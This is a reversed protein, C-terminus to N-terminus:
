EEALVTTFSFPFTVVTKNNFDVKYGTGDKHFFGTTPRIRLFCMNEDEENNHAFYWASFVVAIKDRIARNSPSLPHGINEAIGSFAHMKRACLSVNPNQASETVKQSKAYTAIYFYEGDFYTDVYRLSPVNDACTAMAFQYDKSFLERMINMAFMYQEM